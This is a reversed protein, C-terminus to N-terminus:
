EYKNRKEEIFDASIYYINLEGNDFAHHKKRIDELNNLPNSLYPEVMRSSAFIFFKGDPTVYPCMEHDPSNIPEGLNEPQTWNGNIRFSIFLDGFGLSNNYGRFIIYDEDPSIFPDGEADKSNLVEPLPESKYGEPTKTAKYMDGTNWINFYIDGNKTISSYYNGEEGLEIHQPVGWVSDQKEVYWIGTKGKSDGDKLPRESSFYLRKGDPSFLPDYESHDGSFSAIKPKTWQQDQAIKTFCIIGSKPTNTTFFFETGDPSFTGNYEDLSSALLQPALMIPVKTPTMNMFAGQVSNNEDELHKKCGITSLLLLILVFINQQKIM